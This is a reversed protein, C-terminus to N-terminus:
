SDNSQSEKADNELIWRWADNAIQTVLPLDDRSFSSTSKFQDGDKYIRAITVKFFAAGHDTENRFVSAVIGRYQFKAVPKNTVTGKKANNTM